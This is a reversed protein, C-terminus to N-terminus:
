AKSRLPVTAVIKTGRKRNTIEFHGGVREVRFRMGQLGVGGDLGVLGASSIGVGDDWIKLELCDGHTGFSMGVSQAHAHRHINVLAEQAVRMLAMSAAADPQPLDANAKFSVRCGTRKGFGEILSKLAMGLDHPVSETPHNLFALSRIEAAIQRATDQIEEILGDHANASDMLKLRAVSLQLFLLLQGASDHLEHGIREREDDRLRLIEDFIQERTFELVDSPSGWEFMSLNSAPATAMNHHPRIDNPTPGPAESTEAQWTEKLEFFLGSEKM